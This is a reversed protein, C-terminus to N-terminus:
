RIDPYPPYFQQPAWTARFHLVLAAEAQHSQFDGPHAFFYSPRRDGILWGSYFDAVNPVPARITAGFFLPRQVVAIRCARVESGPALPHTVPLRKPNSGM